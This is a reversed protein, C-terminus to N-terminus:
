MRQHPPGMRREITMLREEIMAAREQFVGRGSELKRLRDNVPLAWQEFATTLRKEMLELRETLRVESIRIRDQMGTRLSTPGYHTVAESEASM